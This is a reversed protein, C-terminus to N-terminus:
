QNEEGNETNETSKPENQITDDLKIYNTKWRLDIYKIKQKLAKAEPLITPIWKIRDDISDDILGLRLSVDELKVYVDTKNRLDLYVVKQKSYAEIKKILKLIEDVRKKDWHEYDDGNTGYSLIKTTEYKSPIPMYERDIYYGDKTVASIPSAEDNPAILFVPVREEILVIIRAPFWLRRVYARKISQLKALDSELRKTSYKYIQEKPTDSTRIINEIKYKPTILNGEIKVADPNINLIDDPNITWMGLNLIRYSLYLLAFILAVRFLMRLQRIRKKATAIKRKLKVIVSKRKYYKKRVSLDDM